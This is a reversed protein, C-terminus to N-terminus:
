RQRRAPEVHIPESIPQALRFEGLKAADRASLACVEAAGSRDVLVGHDRGPSV